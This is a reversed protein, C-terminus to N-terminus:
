VRRKLDGVNLHNSNSDRTFVGSVCATPVSHLEQM